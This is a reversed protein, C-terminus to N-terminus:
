FSTVELLEGNIRDISDVKKSPNFIIKCDLFENDTECYGSNGEYIWVNGSVSITAPTGLLDLVDEQSMGKYIKSGDYLPTQPEGDGITVTTTTTVTIDDRNEQNTQQESSPDPQKNEEVSVKDPVGIKNNSGCSFSLLSIFLLSLYNRM